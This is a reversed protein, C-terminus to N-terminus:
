ENIMLDRVEHPSLPRPVPKWKYFKGDASCPLNSYRKIRVEIINNNEIEYSFTYYRLDGEIRDELLIGVEREVENSDEVGTFEREESIGLFITGGEHNAFEVTTRVLNFKDEPIHPFFRLVEPRFNEIADYIDKEELAVEFSGDRWSM